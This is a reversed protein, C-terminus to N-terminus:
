VRLKLCFNETKKMAELTYVLHAILPSFANMAQPGHFFKFDDYRTFIYCDDDIEYDRNRDGFFQKRNVVIVEKLAGANPVKWKYIVTYSESIEQETM